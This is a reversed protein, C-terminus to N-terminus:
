EKSYKAYLRYLMLQYEDWSDKQVFPKSEELVEELSPGNSIKQAERGARSPESISAVPRRRVGLFRGLNNIINNGGLHFNDSDGLFLVRAVPEEGLDDCHWIGINSGYAQTHKSLYAQAEEESVGLFSLTQPHELAKSINIVGSTSKKLATYDVVHVGNRELSLLRAFEKRPLVAAGHVLKREEVATKINEADSYFHPVHAYLVVPTGAVTRGTARISPSTWWTQWLRHVSDVSTRARIMDPMFFASDVFSLAVHLRDDYVEEVERGFFNYTVMM